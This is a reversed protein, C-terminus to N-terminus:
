SPFVTFVPLASPTGRSFFVATTFWGVLYVIDLNGLVKLEGYGGITKFLFLWLHRQLNLAINSTCLLAIASICTGHTDVTDDQLWM